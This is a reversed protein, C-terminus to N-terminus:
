VAVDVFHGVLAPPLQGPPHAGLYRVLRYRTDGLVGLPVLQWANVDDQVAALREQGSRGPKGLENGREPGLDRYRHVHGHLGVPSQEVVRNQFHEPLEPHLNADAQVAVGLCGRPVPAEGVAATAEARHGVPQGQEVRGFEAVTVASQQAGDIHAVVGDRGVRRQEFEVRRGDVEQQRLRVPATPRGAAAVGVPKDGDEVVPVGGWALLGADPEKALKDLQDEALSAAELSDAQQRAGQDHDIGIARDPLEVRQAGGIRSGGVGPQM